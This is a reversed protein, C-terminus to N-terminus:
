KEVPRDTDADESVETADPTTDSYRLDEPFWKEHFSVSLVGPDRYKIPVRSSERSSMQRTERTDPCGISLTPWPDEDDAHASSDRSTGVQGLRLDFKRGTPRSENLYALFAGYQDAMDAVSRAKNDQLINSSNRSSRFTLKSEPGNYTQHYLYPADSDGSGQTGHARNHPISLCATLIKRNLQRHGGLGATQTKTTPSQSDTSYPNSTGCSSAHVKQPEYNGYHKAM